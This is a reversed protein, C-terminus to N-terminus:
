RAMKNECVKGQWKTKDSNDLQVVIDDSVKFTFASKVDALKGGTLKPESSSDVSASVAARGGSSSPRKKYHDIMSLLHANYITMFKVNKNFDDKSLTYSTAPRTTAAGSAAAAPAAAASPGSSNRVDKFKNVFSPQQMAATLKAISDPTFATGGPNLALNEKLVKIIEREKANRDDIKELSSRFMQFSRHGIEDRKEQTTLSWKTWSSVRKAVNKTIADKLLNYIWPGGKWAGTGEMAASILVSGAFNNCLFLDYPHSAPATPSPEIRASWISDNNSKYYANFWEVVDLIIGEKALTKKFPDSLSETVPAFLKEWIENAQYTSATLVDQATRSNRWSAIDNSINLQISNLYANLSNGDRDKDYTTISVIFNDLRTHFTGTIDRHPNSSTDPKALLKMCEIMAGMASLLGTTKGNGRAAGLRYDPLEYEIGLLSENGDSKWVRSSVHFMEQVASKTLSMSGHTNVKQFQSYVYLLFAHMEQKNNSDYSFNPVNQTATKHAEYLFTVFAELRDKLIHSESKQKRTILDWLRGDTHMGADVRPEAWGAQVADSGPPAGSKKKKKDKDKGGCMACDLNFDVAYEARVTGPEDRLPAM